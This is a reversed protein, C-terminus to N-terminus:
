RSSASKTAKPTKAGGSNAIHRARTEKKLWELDVPKNPTVVIRAGGEVEESTVKTDKLVVECRGLGGGGHGEGNHVVSEPDNKAADVVHKARKRIEVTKVADSSTVVLEVADKRDVIETKVGGVATPCHQMHGGGVTATEKAIAPAAVIFGLAFVSAWRCM